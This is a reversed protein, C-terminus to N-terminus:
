FTFTEAMQLLGDESVNLYLSHSRRLRCSFIDALLKRIEETTSAVQVSTGGCDMVMTTLPLGEKYFISVTNTDSVLTPMDHAVPIFLQVYYVVIFGVRFVCSRFKVVM